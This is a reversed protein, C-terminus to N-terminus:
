VKCYKRGAYEKWGSGVGDGNKKRKEWEARELGESDKGQGKRGEGVM